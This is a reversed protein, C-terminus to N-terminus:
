GESLLSAADAYRPDSRGEANKFRKQYYGDNVGDACLNEVEASNQIIEDRVTESLRQM